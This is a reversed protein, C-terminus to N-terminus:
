TIWGSISILSTLFRVNSTSHQQYYYIFANLVLSLSCILTGGAHTSSYTRIISHFVQNYYYCNYRVSVITINIHISDIIIDCYCLYGYDSCLIELCINGSCWVGRKRREKRLQPNIGTWCWMGDRGTHWWIMNFGWPMRSLQSDTTKIEPRAMLFMTGYPLWPLAGCAILCASLLSWPWPLGAGATRGCLVTHTSNPGLGFLRWKKQTAGGKDLQLVAKPHATRMM